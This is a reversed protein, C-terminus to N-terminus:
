VKASFHQQPLKFYKKVHNITEVGGGGGGGVVMLLPQRLYYTVPIEFTGM